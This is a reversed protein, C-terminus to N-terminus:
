VEPYCNNVVDLKHRVSALGATESIGCHVAGSACKDQNVPSHCFVDVKAIV